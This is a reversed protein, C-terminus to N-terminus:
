YGAAHPGAYGLRFKVVEQEGRKGLRGASALLAALSDEGVGGVRVILSDQRSELRDGLHQFLIGAHVHRSAPRRGIHAPITLLVRQLLKIYRSDLGSKKATSM